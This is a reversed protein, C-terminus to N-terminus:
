RSWRGRIEHVRHRYGSAVGVWVLFAAGWILPEANLAESAAVAAHALMVMAMMWAGAMLGRAVLLSHDLLDFADRWAARPMPRGDDACIWETMHEPM